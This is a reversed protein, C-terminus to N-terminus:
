LNIIQAAGLLAPTDSRILYVPITRLLKEMRGKHLYRPVFESQHFYDGLRPVIGGGIYVGGTAGLTLALDASCSGLQACFIKLTEACVPCRNSLGHEVVAEPSNAELSVDDVIAIASALRVLGPGSLLREASVHGLDKAIVQVIQWERLDNAAVTVHGGEGQLPQWRAVSMESNHTYSRFRILGSVGLGTGPGLVAKTEEKPETSGDPAYVVQREDDTLLPLSLALATFDNVVRFSELQYRKQLASISFQWDGNTLSVTDGIIPNAVAVVAHRFRSVVVESMYQDIADEFGTFNACKYKVISTPKGGPEVTGLRVNTGGIDAVLSVANNM